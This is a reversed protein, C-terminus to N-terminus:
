FEENVYHFPGYILRVGYLNGFMDVLNRDYEIVDTHFATLFVGTELAEMFTYWKGDWHPSVGGGFIKFGNDDTSESLEYKRSLVTKYFEIIENAKQKNKAAKIFICSYLYSRIGDSQFLFHVNDFDVGAYKINEFSLIMDNPNYMPSGYKNRLISSAVEKSMGFDVGCISKIQIAKLKQEMDVFMSDISARETPTAVRYFRLIDVTTESSDQAFGCIAFAGFILSILFKKMIM